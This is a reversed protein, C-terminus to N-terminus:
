IVLNDPNQTEPIVIHHIVDIGHDNRDLSRKSAESVELDCASMRLKEIGKAGM